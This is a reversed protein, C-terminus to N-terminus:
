CRCLAIATGYLSNNIASFTTLYAMALCGLPGFDALKLVMVIQLVTALGALMFFKQEQVTLLLVGRGRANCNISLQSLRVIHLPVGLLLFLLLIGVLLYRFM